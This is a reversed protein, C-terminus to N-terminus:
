GGTAGGSAPRENQQVRRSVCCALPRLRESSNALATLVSLLCPLCGYIETSGPLNEIPRYLAHFVATSMPLRTIGTSLLPRTQEGTDKGTKRTSMKAPILVNKVGKTRLPNDCNGYSKDYPASTYFLTIAHKKEKM